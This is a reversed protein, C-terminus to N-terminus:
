RMAPCNAAVPTLAEIRGTLQAIQRELEISYDELKKERAVLPPLEANRSEVEAESAARVRGNLVKVFELQDPTPGSQASAPAALVLLFVITLACKCATYNTM